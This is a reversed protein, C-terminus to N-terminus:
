RTRIVKIIIFLWGLLFSIGGVPTIIAFMKIETISYAYLSFSFLIIGALIFLYSTTFNYSTNLGIALLVTAHILHYLVGTKYIELNEESVIRKLAHAGFAGFGVALLGMIAATIIQTKTSM